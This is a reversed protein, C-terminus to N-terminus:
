EDLVFVDGAKLDGRLLAASVPEAVRNAVLRLIARAGSEPDDAQEAMRQLAEPSASVQINYRALRVNLAEIERAAINVLAPVSLRSFLIIEDLRNVFEPRFFGTLRLRLSALHSAYMEVSPAGGEIVSSTFLNSTLIFFSQRADVIRGRADSFRGGDFIQLFADQIEPHAKEFEDLLVISFPQRRMRSAFSGEDGYGIYGPPAGWLRAVAHPEKYESLDLQILAEPSGFLFEALAQATAGKGVGTGGFFAFVGRPQQPRGLGTFSKQVASTLRGLALEQGFVREGLFAELGLLRQRLDNGLQGIPINLKESLAQRVWNADVVLPRNTLEEDLPGPLRRLACANDLLDFAKDPLCRELIHEESLEVAAQLAEPLIVVGHHAEYEDQVAALIQITEVPSPEELTIVEFRREFAPDAKLFREFESPTTAGICRLGGRALAPKLLNAIDLAGVESGGSRVLTHVEDIFLILNPDRAAEAVVAQLRAELAGRYATGAILSAPSIEILRADRLKAPVVQRVLSIALSEVLTTKGVGAPGVILPNNKEKRLLIRLLQRLEKERGTNPGLRGQRAMETLDRGLEDLFPTAAAPPRRSEGSPTERRGAPHREEERDEPESPSQSDQWHIRHNRSAM